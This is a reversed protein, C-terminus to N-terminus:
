RRAAPLEFAVQGSFSPSFQRLSLTDAEVDASSYVSIARCLLQRRGDFFCRGAVGADAFPLVAHAQGAAQYSLLTAAWAPMLSFSPPTLRAFRSKTHRLSRYHRRRSHRSDAHCAVSAKRRAFLLRPQPAPTQCFVGALSSGAPEIEASVPPTVHFFSPTFFLRCPSFSTDAPMMAKPTVYHYRAAPAKVFTSILQRPQLSLRSFPPM